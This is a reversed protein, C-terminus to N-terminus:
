LDNDVLDPDDDPHLRLSEHFRVVIVPSGEPTGEPLTYPDDGFQCVIVPKSPGAGVIEELSRVRKIM